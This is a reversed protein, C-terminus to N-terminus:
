VGFGDRLARNNPVQLKIARPERARNLAGASFPLIYGPGGGKSLEKSDTFEIVLVSGQPLSEVRELVAAFGADGRGLAGGDFIYMAQNRDEDPHGDYDLWTLRHRTDPVVGPITNKVCGGGLAALLALCAAVGRM